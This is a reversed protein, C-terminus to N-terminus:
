PEGPDCGIFKSGNFVFYDFTGKRGHLAVGDGIPTRAEGSNLCGADKKPITALRQDYPLRTEFSLITACSYPKAFKCVVLKASFLTGARGKADRIVAAFEAAQSRFHGKTISPSKSAKLLEPAFESSALLQYGPFESAVISKAPAAFATSGLLFTLFLAVSANMQNNNANWRSVITSQFLFSAM